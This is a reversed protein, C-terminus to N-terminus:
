RRGGEGPERRFQAVLRKWERGDREFQFGRLKASRARPNERIEERSPTIPKKT